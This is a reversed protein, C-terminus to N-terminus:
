AIRLINMSRTHATGTGASVRWRAEIAQSGNVIALASIAVCQRVALSPTVGGQIFPQVAVESGVIQAGAAWISSTIVANNNNEDVSMNFAVWYTGAVPTITMTNILVDTTSTTTTNATTNVNTASIGSALKGTSSQSLPAGNTGGFILEGIFLIPNRIM